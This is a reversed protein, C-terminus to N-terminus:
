ANRSVASVTLVLLTRPFVIQGARPEPQTQFVHCKRVRLNISEKRSRQFSSFLGSCNLAERSRVRGKGGRKAASYYEVERRELQHLGLPGAFGLSTHQSFSRNRLM